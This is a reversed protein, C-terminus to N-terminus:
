DDSSAQGDGLEFGTPEVLEVPIRRAGLDNAILLKILQPGDILWILPKDDRAAEAKANPAFGATTIVLGQQHPKLSGSLNQVVPRGVNQAQRKAQVAISVTLGPALEYRGTADIGKDGHYATVEVDNIALARLLQGVLQEFDAPELGRLQKLM